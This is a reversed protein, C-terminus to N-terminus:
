IGVSHHNSGGTLHVYNGSPSLFSEEKAVTWTNRHIFYPQHVDVARSAHLSSVRRLEAAM